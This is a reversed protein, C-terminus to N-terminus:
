LNKEIEEWDLLEIKGAAIAQTRIQWLKKGLETKAEYSPQSPISHKEISTIFDLVEQQKDKPLIRWKELLLQEKTM